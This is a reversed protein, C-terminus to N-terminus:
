RLFVHSADAVKLESKREAGTGVHYTALLGDRVLLVEKDNLWGVLSAHSLFAVRRVPEAGTVIELAPLDALGKKVRELEAPDEKGASGIRMEKNGPGYSSSIMMAVLSRDPSLLARQTFFSVDYNPNEYQAREDFLLTKRSDRLLWTQDNSENEWGCCGTDPIRQIWTVGNEAADEIDHRAEPLETTSWKGASQRVMLSPEYRTALQGSTYHIVILYSGVGAEPTWLSARPCTEECLGTECQCEPFSFSYINEAHGGSLDTQWMRVSANVVEPPDRGTTRSSNAFWVLHDGDVSLRPEPITETIEIKGGQAAQERYEAGCDLVNGSHGNWLWLKCEGGRSIAGGPFVPGFLMQGSANVQLARAIDGAQWDPRRAAAPITISGRPAFTSIDYEVVEAPGNLLWLRRSGV